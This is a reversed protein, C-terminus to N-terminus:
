QWKQNIVYVDDVETVSLPGAFQLNDDILTKVSPDHVFVYVIVNFM